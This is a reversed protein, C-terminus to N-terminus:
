KIRVPHTSAFLNADDLIITPGDVHVIENNEDVADSEIYWVAEVPQLEYGSDFTEVPVDGYKQVVNQLKKILERALM